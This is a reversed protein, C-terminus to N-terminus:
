SVQRWENRWDRLRRQPVHVEIHSPQRGGYLVAMPEGDTERTYVASVQRPPSNRQRWHQGVRIKPPTKPRTEYSRVSVGNNRRHAPVVTM